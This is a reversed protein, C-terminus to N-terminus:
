GRKKVMIRRIVILAAAAAAAVAGIIVKHDLSAEDSTYDDDYSVVGGDLAAESLEGSADEDFSTIDSSADDGTLGEVDETGATYVAGDDAGISFESADGTDVSYAANGSAGIQCTADEDGSTLDVSAYGESTSVGSSTGLGKSSSKASGSSTKKKSDSGSKVTKSAKESAKTNETETKLSDKSNDSKKSEGSISEEETSKSSEQNREGIEDEKEEAKKTELKDEAEKVYDPKEELSALNEEANSLEAKADNSFAEWASKYEAVDMSTGSYAYGFEQAAACGNSSYAIATTKFDETVINEYHGTEESFENGNEEYIAKEKEYWGDFPDSYGWALNEGFCDYGSLPSKKYEQYLTHNNTSCGVANSVVAIAMARTNVKLPDLGESARLSNCEEILSLAKLFNDETCASDVHSNFSESSVLSSINEGTAADSYGMSSFANVADEITYGDGAMEDIFSRVLNDTKKKASDVANQAAEKEAEWKNVADSLATELSETSNDEVTSEININADEKAEADTAAFSCMAASSTIMMGIFAICGTKRIAERITMFIEKRFNNKNNRTTDKDNEKYRKNETM